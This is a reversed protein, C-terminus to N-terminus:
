IIKRKKNTSKQHGAKLFRQKAWGLTLFINQKRRLAKYNKNYASASISQDDTKPIEDM